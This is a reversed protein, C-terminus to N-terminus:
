TVTASSPSGITYGSGAALTVVVTEPGEVLADDLPTVTLTVSAQGAPIIVHSPLANYDVGPSATGSIAFNVSLSSAKSGYRVFTFKAPPSLQHESTSPTSPIIAIHTQSNALAQWTTTIRFEDLSVAGKLGQLAIADFRPGRGGAGFNTLTAHPNVPPSATLPPNLYMKVNATSIELVIFTVQRSDSGNAVHWGGGSGDDAALVWDKQSGHGLIRFQCENNKLFMIQAIRWGGPTYDSTKALFSVWCTEPTTTQLKRYTVFGANQLHSNGVTELGLYTFGGSNVIGAEWDGLWGYGGNLVVDNTQYEFRDIVIPGYASQDELWLDVRNTNERITYSQHPELIIQINEKSEPLSDHVPHISFSTADLGSPIVLTYNTQAQQLGNIQYDDNLNATGSMQLHVILPMHLDQAFRKVIIEAPPGGEILQLSTTNIEIEPLDTTASSAVLFTGLEYEGQANRPTGQQFLYMPSRINNPDIVSLFIRYTGQTTSLPIDLAEFFHEGQGPNTPLINALAISTSTKSTVLANNQDRISFRVQWTEYCPANGDNHLRIVIPLKQNPAVQPPYWAAGVRYRYGLYRGFATNNTPININAYIQSVHHTRAQDASLNLDSGVGFFETIFPATRWRSAVFPLINPLMGAEQDFWNDGLNDKRIGIKPNKQMAYRFAAGRLSPLENSDPVMLKITNPFAACVMDIIRQRTELSATPTGNDNLGAMHWEGWRGYFGIDIYAIQPHNDYRQGLAQIFTELRNLFEPANWQPIYRNQSDIFRLSSNNAIDHPLAPSQWSENICYIRFAHKAGILGAAAIDNDIVSFNYNGATTPEIESWLYRMYTDKPAPLSSSYPWFNIKGFGRLGSHIDISTAPDVPPFEIAQCQIALLCLLAFRRAVWAAMQLGLWSDYQRLEMAKNRCSLLINIGFLRNNPLEGWDQSSTQARNSSASNSIQLASLM